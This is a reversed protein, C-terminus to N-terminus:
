TSLAVSSCSAATCLRRMERRGAAAPPAMALVPLADEEEEEKDDLIEKDVEDAGAAATDGAADALEGRSADSAGAALRRRERGELAIAATVLAAM